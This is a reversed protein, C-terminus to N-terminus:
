HFRAIKKRSANLSATLSGGRDGVYKTANEYAEHAQKKTSAGPDIGQPLCAVYVNEFRCILQAAVAYPATTEEPDLMIVISSDVSRKFIQILQESHLTKGMMALASIGHQWLKIADFPGEVLTVDQDVDVHLWGLLLRGQDVGSPNLIKPQQEGTADRAVFSKGNPCEVPIIIRGGYKGKQCYGLGWEKATRAKIGRQKLYTPYKWTTGDWVPIFEPPLEAETAEEEEYEGDRLARIKELLSETTEKRRFQVSKKLIFAKAEAWTIGEVQAVVGVLRRGKEECKHCIYHGNKKNVYFSGWKECWPCEAMLQDIGANKTRELQDFCYEEIDFKV